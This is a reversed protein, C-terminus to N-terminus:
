GEAAEGDARCRPVRMTFRTGRHLESELHLQLGLVRDIRRVNALGLGFGHERRHGPLQLQEFEEFIRQQDEVAIGPGTDAVCIRVHDPQIEARVEVSGTETFKIANHLLNGLLRELLARDTTVEAPLGRINLQLPKDGVLPRYANDLDEFVDEIDFTELHPRLEGTDVHARDLLNGFLTQLVRITGRIKRVVELPKAETVQMSLSGAYLSLAALPQDLDHSAARLFESKSRSAAEAAKKERDLEGILRINKVFARQNQRGLSVLLYAIVLLPVTIKMGEVGEMVWFVIPQGLNIALALQFSPAHSSLNILAGIAYFCIALTVFFQIEQTSVTAVWWIGSGMALNLPITTWFMKSESAALEAPGATDLGRIVERCVAARLCLAAFTLVLWGALRVAPAETWLLLGVVLLVVTLSPFSRFAQECRVRLSARSIEVDADVARSGDASVPENMSAHAAVHCGTASLM